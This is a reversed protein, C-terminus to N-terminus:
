RRLPSHGDHGCMKNTRKRELEVSAVVGRKNFTVVESIITERCGPQEPTYIWAAGRVTTPAGRRAKVQSRTLGILNDL